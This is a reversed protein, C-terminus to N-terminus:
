SFSVKQVKLRFNFYKGCRFSGNKLGTEADEHLSRDIKAFFDFIKPNLERSNMLTQRSRGFESLVLVKFHEPAQVVHGQFNINQL